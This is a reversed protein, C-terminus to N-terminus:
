SMGTGNSCQVVLPAMPSGRRALAARPSSITARASLRASSNMWRKMPVVRVHSLGRLGALDVQQNSGGPAATLASRREGDGAGGGSGDDSVDGLAGRGNDIGSDGGGFSGQGHQAP